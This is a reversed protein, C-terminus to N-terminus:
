ARKLRLLQPRQAVVRPKRAVLEWGVAKAIGWVTHFRPYITKNSLRVVTTYTIGAKDALKQWSHGLRDAEAFLEKVINRLERLYKPDVEIERPAKRSKRKAM